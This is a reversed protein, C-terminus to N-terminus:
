LADVEKSIIPTSPMALLLGVQGCAARGAPKREARRLQACRRTSFSSAATGHRCWRRAFSYACRALDATALMAPCLAFCGPAIWLAFVPALACAVLRLFLAVFAQLFRGCSLAIFPNYAAVNITCITM